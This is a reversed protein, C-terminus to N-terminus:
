KKKWGRVEGAIQEAVGTRSWVVNYNERSQMYQVPAIHIYARACMSVDYFPPPYIKLSFNQLM